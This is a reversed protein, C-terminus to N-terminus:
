ALFANILGAFLTFLYWGCAASQCRLKSFIIQSIKSYKEDTQIEFVAVVVVLWWLRNLIRRTHTEHGLYCPVPCNTSPLTAPYLSLSLLELHM